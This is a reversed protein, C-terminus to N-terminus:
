TAQLSLSKVDSGNIWHLAHHPRWIIYIENCIVHHAFVICNISKWKNSICHLAIWNLASGLYVKTLMLTCQHKGTQSWLPVIEFCKKVTKIKIPVVYIIDILWDILERGLDTNEKWLLLVVISFRTHGPYKTHPKWPMTWTDSDLM